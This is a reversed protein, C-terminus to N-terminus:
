ARQDDTSRFGVHVEHPMPLCAGLTHRIRGALGRAEEVRTDKFLGIIAVIELMRGTRTIRLEEIDLDEDVMNVCRSIAARTKPDCSGDMLGRLSDHLLYVSYPIIFTAMPIALIYDTATLGCRSIVVAVVVLLSLLFDANLFFMIRPIDLQELVSVRNRIRHVFCWNVAAAAASLWAATLDPPYLTHNFTLHVVSYLTTVTATVIILSIGVVLFSELKGQSFRSGNASTARPAHVRLLSTISILIGFLAFISSDLLSKSGSIVGFVSKALLMCVFFILLSYATNEKTRKPPDTQRGAM